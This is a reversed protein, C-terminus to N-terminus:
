AALRDVLNKVTTTHWEGGRATKTGSANLEEAMARLTMGAGRMRMITPRLRIAFADAKESVAKGANVCAKARIDASAGLVEGRARKAALAAKTRDSIMKREQEALGAYIHLMFPDVDEGLVTVIFKPNQRTYSLIFLADRSLRDLKNVVVYAGMKAARKTVAALVPRSDDAGSMVEEAIDILEYGNYHCFLRIAEAQAELGNRNEGQEKTSVRTYGIIKKV